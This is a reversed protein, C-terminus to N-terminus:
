LFIKALRQSRNKMWKSYPKQVVLRCIDLLNPLQLGLRLVDDCAECAGSVWGWWKQWSRHLLLPFIIFYPLMHCSHSWWQSILHFSVPIWSYPVFMTKGRSAVLIRKGTRSSIKRGRWLISNRNAWIQQLTNGPLLSSIKHMKTGHGWPWVWIHFRPYIQM